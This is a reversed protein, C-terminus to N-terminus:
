CLVELLINKLNDQYITQLEQLPDLEQSTSNSHCM